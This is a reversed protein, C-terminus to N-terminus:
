INSSIYCMEDFHLMYCLMYSMSAPSLIAVACERKKWHFEEHTRVRLSGPNGNITIKFEEYSIIQTVGLESTFLKTFEETVVDHDIRGSYVMGTVTM